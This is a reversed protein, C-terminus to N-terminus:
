ELRRRHTITSVQKSVPSSEICKCHQDFFQGKSYRYIRINPNFGVVEGGWLERRAGQDLQLGDESQVNGIVIDKMGTEEWLRKAFVADQIQFRDNVRVADGKKPKGPTTVLPLNSLFSVYTKCLSSPWFNPITIIQNPLIEKLSLASSPIISKFTPWNPSLAQTSPVAEKKKSKPAM